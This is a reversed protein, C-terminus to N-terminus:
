KPACECKAVDAHLETGIREILELASATASERSKKIAAWMAWPPTPVTLPLYWWWTPIDYWSFYHRLMSDVIYIGPWVSLILGIAFVTPILPKLRTEFAVVNHSGSLDPHFSANLVSEFPHGFDRVAFLQSDDM